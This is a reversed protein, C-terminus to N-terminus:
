LQPFFPDEEDSAAAKGVTEEIKCVPERVLLFREKANEWAARTIKSCGGGTMKKCHEAFLFNGLRILNRPSCVALQVMEEVISDGLSDECLQTLDNPGGFAELRKRLMELLDMDAWQLTRVQLRDSRLVRSEKLDGAWELPLFFKFAVGPLDLLKLHALLPSLLRIASDIDCATTPMEDVCDVLVYVADYGMPKLTLVFQRMLDSSSARLKENFHKKVTKGAGNGVAIPKIDRKILEARQNLSLERGFGFLFWQLYLKNWRSIQTYQDFITRDHILDLALSEMARHLIEILHPHVSTPHRNQQSGIPITEFDSFTVGLARGRGFAKRRCLRDIMVRQATKGCGKPAFVVSSRPTTPDGSIETFCTNPVFYSGLKEERGAEHIAFPNGSYGAFKLWREMGRHM